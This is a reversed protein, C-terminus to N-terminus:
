HRAREAATLRDIRSNTAARSGAVASGTPVCWVIASVSASDSGNFNDVGLSYDNSGTLEFFEYATVSIISWDGHVAGMGAPCAATVHTVAGPPISADQEVRTMQALNAPGPPGPPGAVGDTGDFGRPGRKGKLAKRVSPKIQKTSTIIYGGALATGGLAVVLAAVSVVLAPSRFQMFRMARLDRDAGRTQCGIRASASLNLSDRDVQDDIDLVGGSRERLDSGRDAVGSHVDSGRGTEAAVRAGLQVYEHWM